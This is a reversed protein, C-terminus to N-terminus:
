PCIIIPDGGNDYEIHCTPYDGPGQDPTLHIDVSDEPLLPSNPDGDEPRRCRDMQDDYYEGEPCVPNTPSPEVTETPVPEDTPLPEVTETAVPTPEDTPPATPASGRGSRNPREGALATGTVAIVLLCITLILTLRGIRSTNHTM